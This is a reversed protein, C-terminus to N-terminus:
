AAEGSSPETRQSARDRLSAVRLALLPVVENTAITVDIVVPGQHELAVAFAPGLETERAVRLGLAGQSEALAAFDTRPMRTEIPAIGLAELGDETLGFRADNLVVWVAQANYQVATNVENNMLMAGDGTLVVAKSGRAIAAGVVGTVFHGMSGYAASTRYRGPRNFRLLHNAWAFSNGSEAMVIADSGDVFLRQVEQFLARPRVPGADLLTVPPPPPLAINHPPQRPWDAPMRELLAELFRGIESVVGVVPTGLFATGFADSTLDIQVLGDPPVLGPAYFSSVEGLRTGLVLWRRIAFERVYREVSEHAGAGSVGVFHPDREDFVGKARPTCVVGCGTRRVLEALETSARMAGYGAWVGWRGKNLLALATDVADVWPAASAVEIRPTMGDAPPPECQVNTPLALHALFGGPRQLGTAIQTLATPLESASAFLRAWHFLPGAVFLETPMTDPGTEQVAGRGRM